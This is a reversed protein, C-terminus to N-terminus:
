QWVMVKHRQLFVCGPLIVLALRLPVETGWEIALLHGFGLECLEALMGQGLEATVSPNGSPAEM